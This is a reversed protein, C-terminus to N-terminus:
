MSHPGEDQVSPDPYTDTLGHTHQHPAATGKPAPTVLLGLQLGPGCSQLASRPWGQTGLMARQVTCVHEKLDGKAKGEQM